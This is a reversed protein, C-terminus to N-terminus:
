GSAACVPASALARADDDRTTLPVCRKRRVLRRVSRWGSGGSLIASTFAVFTAAAEPKDDLFLLLAAVGCLAGLVLLALTRGVDLTLTVPASGRAGEPGVGRSVKVLMAM